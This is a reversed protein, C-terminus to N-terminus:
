IHSFFNACRRMYQILFGKRIYSKAVAGMQIEKYILFIKNEKKNTYKVERRLPIITSYVYLVLTGTGEDSNARGDGGGCALTNGGGEGPGLHPPPVSAQMPPSGIQRIVLFGPVRHLTYETTRLISCM